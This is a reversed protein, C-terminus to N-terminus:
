EVRDTEGVIGEHVSRLPPDPYSVTGWHVSLKPLMQLVSSALTGLTYAGSFLDPTGPTDIAFSHKRTEPYRFYQTTDEGKEATVVKSQVSQDLSQIDLGYISHGTSANTSQNTSEHSQDISQNPLTQSATYM